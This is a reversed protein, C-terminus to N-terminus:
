MSSKQFRDYCFGWCRTQFRHLCDFDLCEQVSRFVGLCEHAIKPVGKVSRSVFLGEFENLRPGQNGDRSQKHRSQM